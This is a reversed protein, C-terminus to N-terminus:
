KIKKNIFVKKLWIVKKKSNIYNNQKQDIKRKHFYNKFMSFIIAINNKKKLLFNDKQM